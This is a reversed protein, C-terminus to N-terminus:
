TTEEKLEVTHPEKTYDLIFKGKFDAIELTQTRDDKATVIGSCYIGSGDPTVVLVDQGVELHKVEDWLSM